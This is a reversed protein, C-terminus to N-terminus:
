GILCQDAAARDAIETAQELPLVMAFQGCRRFLACSSCDLAIKEPVWTHPVISFGLRVFYGPSHTFACLKEFGQARARRRLEEVILQGIGADRADHGVVLSRIEAVDHSLPALEGCGAVVSGRVAVVFRRAHRVIEPLARPLLHGQEQHSVILAHIQGAEEATATRLTVRVRDARSRRSAIGRRSRRLTGNM